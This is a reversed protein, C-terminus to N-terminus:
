FAIKAAGKQAILLVNAAETTSTPLSLFDNGQLLTQGGEGAANLEFTLLNDVTTAEAQTTGTYSSYSNFALAYALGCLTYNTESTKATVENWNSEASPLTTSKGNVYKEKACNANAKAEADGNTSPDSYKPATVSKGNRQIEAWFTATGAGGKPPSFSGNARTDALDAYGITGATEAIKSVVGSNGKARLVTAEEPWLTNKIGEALQQWTQTGDVAKNNLQYLYHMLITTSGAGDERVVRTIPSAPVCGSGSLKDGSDTIESWKTITGRFIKELTVNNLVLRGAAASSTAVCNAPLHVPIALSAQLVPITLLTATKGHAEIEGELAASPAIETDLFANSAGFSAAHGSVGWSELGAASSSATYAATPKGTSGQTGSCATPNKSTNFDPDWISTQAIKTLTAGQGTINEGSCQQGLSADAADASALAAALLGCIALASILRRISDPRM